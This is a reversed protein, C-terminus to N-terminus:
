QTVIRNALINIHAGKEYDIHIRQKQILGQLPLM